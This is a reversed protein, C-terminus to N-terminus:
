FERVMIIGGKEHIGQDKFGCRLYANRAAHNNPKVGLYFEKIGLELSTYNLFADIIERALGRGRFSVDGILIGFWAHSSDIAIPELKVNGVHKETKRDYFGMLLANQSVNKKEVYQVIEELSFNSKASELFPNSETDRM